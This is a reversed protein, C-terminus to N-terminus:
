VSNGGWHLISKLLFIKWVKIGQAQEVSNVTHLLINLMGEFCDNSVNKFNFIAKIWKSEYKQFSVIRECKVKGLIEKQTNNRIGGM